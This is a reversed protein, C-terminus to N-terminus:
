KTWEQNAAAAADEISLNGARRVRDFSELWRKIEDLNDRGYNAAFPSLDMIKKLHSVKATAGLFGMTVAIPLLFSLFDSPEPEAGSDLWAALEQGFKEDPMPLIQDQYKGSRDKLIRGIHDENLEVLLDFEYEIGKGEEPALGLRIVETRGESTKNISWETKSRMTAIVHGPYNILAEIFAMQKPTGESWAAWTNGGFKSRALREVELLLERWGHSLSDIILIDYGATAAARVADIYGRLTKDDLILTDFEFGFTPHGAYKSASGRETDILAIKGGIGKAMRLATMTKGAGSPGFIAVRLKALKRTAKQFPM